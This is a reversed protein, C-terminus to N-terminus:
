IGFSGHTVEIQELYVDQLPPIQGPAINLAGDPYRSIGKTDSVVNGSFRFWIIWMGEMPFIRKILNYFLSLPESATRCVITEDKIIVGCVVPVRLRHDLNHLYDLVARPHTTDLPFLEELAKALEDPKGKFQKVNLSM